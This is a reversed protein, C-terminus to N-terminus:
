DGRPALGGKERFFRLPSKVQFAECMDQGGSGHRHASKSNLSLVCRGNTDNNRKGGASWIVYDGAHGCLVDGLRQTASDDDFILWTGSTRDTALKHRAGLRVTVGQEQSAAARHHRRDDQLRYT